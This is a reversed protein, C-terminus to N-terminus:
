TARLPSAELGAEDRLVATRLRLRCPQAEDDLVIDRHAIMAPQGNHRLFGRFSGFEEKLRTLVRGNAWVFRRKHVIPNRCRGELHVIELLLELSQALKTDFERQLRHICARDSHSHKVICAAIEDLEDFHDFSPLLESM